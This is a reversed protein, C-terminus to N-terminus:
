WTHHFLPSPYYVTCYSIWYNFVKIRRLIQPFSVWGPLPWYIFFSVKKCRWVSRENIPFKLSCADIGVEFSPSRGHKEKILVCMLALFGLIKLTVRLKISLLGNGQWFRICIQRHSPFGSKTRLPNSFCFLHQWCCTSTIGWDGIYFPNPFTTLLALM